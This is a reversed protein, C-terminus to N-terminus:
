VLGPVVALTSWQDAQKSTAIEIAPENSQDPASQSLMELAQAALLEQLYFRVQNTGSTLQDATITLRSVLDEDVEIPEPDAPKASSTPAQQGLHEDEQSYMLKITHPVKCRKVPQGCAASSIRRNTEESSPPQRLGHVRTNNCKNLFDIMVTQSDLKKLSYKQWLKLRETLRTSTLMNLDLFHEVHNPCMWLRDRPPMTCLPPNLCNLHYMLSCFGCKAM